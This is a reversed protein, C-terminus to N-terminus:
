RIADLKQAGDEVVKHTVPNFHIRNASNEGPVGGVKLQRWLRAPGSADGVLVYQTKSGDYTITDAEGRFTKGEISANTRAVMEIHQPENGMQAVQTVQLYECLLCGAEESLEDRTVVELKQEVPGYIVVVHDRFISTWAGNTALLSNSGAAAQVKPADKPRPRSRGAMLDSFDGEMTGSFQVQDFEWNTTKRTKPPANSRVNSFQSIGSPQGSENHRWVRLTGPGSATCKGTLKHFVLDLFRGRRIEALQDNQTAQSEFEVDGQCFVTDIAPRDAESKPQEQTFSFPKTLTVDMNLCRIESQSQADTMTTHVNVFFHATKGDFHMKQRWQVDLPQAPESASTRVVTEQDPGTPNSQQIPLQLRGPGEVDATNRLRNFVIRGGEIHAGRDRVHAPQGLVVMEQDAEGRNHVQLINGNVVLPEAADGHSQTLQVNDHAVVDAVQPQQGEPGQIVKVQVWGATLNYPDGSGGPAGFLDNANKKNAPQTAKPSSAQAAAPTVAVRAPSISAVPVAGRSVYDGTPVLNARQRPQQTPSRRAPAPGNEFWVELKDTDCEMQPNVMAVKQWALMHDLHPGNETQRGAPPENARAAQPNRNQRTVWLRIINATIGAGDKPQEIFADELHILDFAPSRPDPYKRMEKHWYAALDVQKTKDDIHRMEGEGLCMVHTVEGQPDHNLQVKQALLRNGHQEVVVCNPSNPLRRQQGNKDVVIRDRDAERPVWTLKAERAPQDYSFERMQSKMGNVDSTLQVVRGQARISKFTLNSELGGTTNKGAANDKDAAVAVASKSASKDDSPKKSGNPQKAQGPKQPEFAITVSEDAILEDFKGPATERSIRVNRDFTAIRAEVYFVFSGDCHAHIIRPGKSENKGLGPLGGAQSDGTSVLTMEVNQLLKVSSVGTVALAEDSRGKQDAVLELQIGKAIAHHKDAHIDVFDDSYIRMEERQFYFNRGRIRLNNAGTIEVAGELGASVIPGPNKGLAGFEDKFTVYAKDSIVTYPPDDPKGGKRRSIMAFPTFIVVHASEKKWEQFYCTTDGGETSISHSSDPVWTGPLYRRAKLKGPDDSAQYFSAESGPLNPTRQRAVRAPPPGLGRAAERYGVFMLFLTLGTGLTIATRELFSGAYLASALGDSRQSKSSRNRFQPM